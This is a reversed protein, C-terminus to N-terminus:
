RYEIPTDKRLDKLHRDALLGFQEKRLQSEVLERKAEDAKVVSRGCVAWLEMGGQGVSPPVMSGDAASLLLGRTPEPVASAKQPGINDLRAGSVSNALAPLSKCGDFKRWISEAEQFRKAMVKQDMKDPMPLVIRQLQLEVSDEEDKPGTSVIRDVERETVQIQHGFRRRIVDMWSMQARYSSRITELDVGSAKLQESYQKLTMNNRKAREGLAKDVDEESVLVGVRRAEQIMLRDDILAELAKQRIGAMAGARAGDVAQRQLQKGYEQMRGKIIAILEERSAGPNASVVEKQIAKMREQVAESKLMSQFRAKAQEGVGAGQAMLRQRQEVEYGTIPDDGVLVIISQGGKKKASSAATGEKAAATRTTSGDSKAAPKPKASQPTAAPKATSSSETVTPKLAGTTEQGLAVSSLVLGNAAALGANRWKTWTRRTSACM